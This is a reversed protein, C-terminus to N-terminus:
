GRSAQHLGENCIIIAGRPHSPEVKNHYVQVPTASKRSPDASLKSVLHTKSMVPARKQLGQEKLPHNQKVRKQLTITEIAKKCTKTM